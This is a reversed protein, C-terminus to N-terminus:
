NSIPKFHLSCLSISPKIQFQCVTSVTIVIKRIKIFIVSVNESRVDTAYCLPFPATPAHARPRLGQPRMIVCKATM